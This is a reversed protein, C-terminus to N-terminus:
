PEVIELDDLLFYLRPGLVDWKAWGITNAYLGAEVSVRDKIDILLRRQNDNGRCLERKCAASLRVRTGQRSIEEM